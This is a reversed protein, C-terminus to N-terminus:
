IRQMMSWIASVQSGPQSAYSTDDYGWWDWCGYPNYPYSASSPVAQPYLVIISNTDAWENLGSNTVFATGVYSQGQECGHLAVVLKCLAGSACNSKCFSHESSPRPRAVM